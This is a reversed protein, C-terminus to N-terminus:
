PVSFNFRVFAADNHLFWLNWSEHSSLHKSLIKGLDIKKYFTVETPSLFCVRQSPPPVGVPLSIRSPSPVTTGTYSDATGREEVVICPKSSEATSISSTAAFYAVFAILLTTLFILIITAIKWSCKHACTKQFHLRSSNIAASTFKSPSAFPPRAPGPATPLQILQPNVCNAIPVMPGTTSCPTGCYVPLPNSYTPGGPGGTACTLPNGGNKHHPQPTPNNVGNAISSSKQEDSKSVQIQQPQSYIRENDKVNLKSANNRLNQGESSIELGSSSEILPTVHDGISMDQSPYISSMGTKLMTPLYPPESECESELYGLRPRLGLGDMRHQAQINRGPLLTSPAPEPPSEHFMNQAELSPNGGRRTIPESDTCTADSNNDSTSSSSPGRHLSLYMRGRSSGGNGSNGRM